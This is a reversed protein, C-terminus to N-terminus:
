DGLGFLGRGCLLCLDASRAAAATQAAVSDCLLYRDLGELSFCQHLPSAAHLGLPVSYMGGISGFLAIPTDRTDM